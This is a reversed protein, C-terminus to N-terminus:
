VSLSCIYYNTFLQFSNFVQLQLMLVLKFSHYIDHQLAIILLLNLNVMCFTM